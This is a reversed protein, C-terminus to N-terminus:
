CEKGSGYMRRVRPQPRAGLTGTMFGMVETRTAPVTPRTPNPRATGASAAV